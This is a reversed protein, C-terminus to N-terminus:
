LVEGRAQEPREYTLRIHREHLGEVATGELVVSDRQGLPAAADVVQHRSRRQCEEIWLERPHALWERPLHPRAALQELADWERGAIAHLDRHQDVDPTRDAELSHRLHVQLDVAVAM